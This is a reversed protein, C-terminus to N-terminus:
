IDCNPQKQCIARILGTDTDTLVLRAEILVNTHNNPQLTNNDAARYVNDHGNYCQRTDLTNHLIPDHNLLLATEDDNM